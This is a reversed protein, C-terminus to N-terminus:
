CTGSSARPLVFYEPIAADGGPLDRNGGLRIELGENSPRYVWDLGEVLSPRRSSPQAAEGAERRQRTEFALTTLERSLELRTARSWIKGASPACLAWPACWRPFESRILADIETPTMSVSDSSRLEELAKHQRRANNRFAVRSIPGLTLQKAAAPSELYSTRYIMFAEIELDLFLERHLELSGSRDRPASAPMCSARLLPQQSRLTAMAVLEAILGPFARTATVLRQSARLTEEAAEDSGTRLQEATEVLLLKQLHLLALWNPIPSGLGESLDSEWVALEPGLLLGRIKELTPAATRLFDRVELPAEPLTDTASKELTTLHASIAGQLERYASEATRTPRMQKPKQPSALRIGIQAALHRLEVVVQNDRTPPYRELFPEGELQEFWDAELAQNAEHARVYGFGAVLCVIAFFAAPAIWRRHKKPPTM